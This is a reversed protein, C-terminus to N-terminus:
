HLAEHGDLVFCSYLLFLEHYPTKVHGHRTRKEKEMGCSHAVGLLVANECGAGRGGKAREAPVM